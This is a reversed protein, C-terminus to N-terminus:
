KEQFCLDVKKRLLLKTPKKNVICKKKMRKSGDDSDTDSILLPMDDTDMAKNDEEKQPKEEKKEQKEAKAPQLQELKKKKVEM